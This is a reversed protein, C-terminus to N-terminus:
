ISGSIVWEQRTPSWAFARFWTARPFRARLMTGIDDVGWGRSDLSHETVWAKGLETRVYPKGKPYDIRSLEVRYIM